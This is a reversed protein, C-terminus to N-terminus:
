GPNKEMFLRTATNALETGKFDANLSEYFLRANEADGAELYNRLASLQCDGNMPGEPYEESAEAYKNAAEAFNAQDEYCGAIGALASARILKDDRYTSLYMEFYRIAEPYNRIKLNVKGLLFTAQRASYDGGYEEVIQSLSMIAVQNNENRYDMVARSLRTAAEQQRSAQSATYYTGATALLIAAVVGIVTFQWNEIFWSKSKLMFATFKDEKIKRKSLKVKQYM